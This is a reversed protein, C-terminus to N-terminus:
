PALHSLGGSRPAAARAQGGEVGRRRRRPLRREGKAETRWPAGDHPGHQHPRTRGGGAIAGLSAPCRRTEIASTPAPEPPPAPPPQPPPPPKARPEHQAPPFLPPPAPPLPAPAFKPPQPPPLPLTTKPPHNKPPHHPPQPTAPPLTPIVSPPTPGLSLPHHLSRPSGPGRQVGERGPRPVGPLLSGPSGRSLRSPPVHEQPIVNRLSCEPPTGRGTSM